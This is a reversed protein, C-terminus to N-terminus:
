PGALVPKAANEAVAQLRLIRQRRDHEVFERGLLEALEGAAYRRGMDMQWLRDQATVYGQAFFLDDLTAAAIHPVGRKDRTVAVQARLGPLVLEGDVQPLAAHGAAFVWAAVGIIVVAAFVFLALVTRLGKRRVGRREVTRGDIM